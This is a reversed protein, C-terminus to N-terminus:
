ILGDMVLIRYIVSERLSKPWPTSRQRPKFGLRAAGGIPMGVKGRRQKICVQTNEVVMGRRIWLLPVVPKFSALSACMCSWLFGLSYFLQSEDQQSAGFAVFQSSRLVIGRHYFHVSRYHVGRM